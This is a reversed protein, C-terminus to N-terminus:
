IGHLLNSSTNFLNLILITVSNELQIINSQRDKNQNSHEKQLKQM